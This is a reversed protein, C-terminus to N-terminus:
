SSVELGYYQGGFGSLMLGYVKMLNFDDISCLWPRLLCKMLDSSNMSLIELISRYDYDKNDQKM